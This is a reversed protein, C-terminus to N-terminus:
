INLKEHDFHRKLFMLLKVDHLMSNVKDDKVQEFHLLSYDRVTEFLSIETDPHDGLENFASWLLFVKQETFSKARKFCEIYRRTSENILLQRHFKVEMRHEKVMDLLEPDFSTCHELARGFFEFRRVHENLLEREYMDLDGFYHYFSSRNLGVLISLREVNLSQPGSAAFLEYGIEFWKERNSKSAGM